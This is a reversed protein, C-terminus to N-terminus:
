DDKSGDYLSSFYANIFNTLSESSGGAMLQESVKAYYANLIEGYSVHTNTQPDYATDNSGFLQEANGYGGSNLTSDKDDGYIYDGGVTGLSVTVDEPILEDPIDFIEILRQIVYKRVTDNEYQILLEASLGEYLSNHAADVNNTVWSDSYSDMNQSVYQYKEKLGVLAPLLTDGEVAQLPNLVAALADALESITERSMKSKIFDLETKVTTARLSGIAAALGKVYENESELMALAVENYTNASDISTNIEVIISVVYAQMETVPHPTDLNSLLNNLSALVEQKPVDELASSQVYEILEIVATKQWNTVNYDPELEETSPPTVAKLPVLIAPILIAIALIPAIIHLFLRKEKFAYPFLSLLRNNTDERQIKSMDTEDQKYELMTQTKEGLAFDKDLRKAIHKDKPFLILLMIGFGLLFSVLGILVSYLTNISNLALKQILIAASVALVSISVAFVSSKVFAKIWLRKKIKLFGDSM